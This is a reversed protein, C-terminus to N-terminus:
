IVVAVRGGRLPRLAPVVARVFARVLPLPRDDPIEVEVGSGRSSARPLPRRSLPPASSRSAASARTSCRSGACSARRAAPRSPTRSRHAEYGRRTSCSRSSRGPSGTARSRSRSRQSSSSVTRTSPPTSSSGLTRSRSAHARARRAPAAGGRAPAQLPQLSEVALWSEYRGSASRSAIGRSSRPTRPAHPDDVGLDSLRPRIRAEDVVRYGRFGGPLPVHPELASEVLEPDGDGVRAGRARRRPRARRPRLPGCSGRDPRAGVAASRPAGRRRVEDDRRLAADRLPPQRRARARRDRRLRRRRRLPLPRDGGGRPWRCRGTCFRSAAPISGTSRAQWRSCPRAASRWSWRGRETLSRLTRPGVFELPLKREFVKLEREPFAREVLPLADLAGLLLIERYEGALLLRTWASGREDDDAWQVEDLVLLTGPRRRWRSPAASSRRASTSASRAPSSGSASWASRAGRPAPPGGARAHSAARRLAPAKAVLEDLAAHTKGLEDTWTRSSASRSPGAALSASVHDEARSASRSLRSPAGPRVPEAAETQRATPATRADACPVRVRVTSLAGNWVLLSRGGAPRRRGDRRRWRSAPLLLASPALPSTSRSATVTAAQVSSWCPASRICSRCGGALYLGPLSPVAGRHQEPYGDDERPVPFRIWDWDNRFGTCWIVNAVDVVRGDALM